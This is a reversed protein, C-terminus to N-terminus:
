GHRSRRRYATHIRSLRQRRRQRRPKAAEYRRHARILARYAPRGLRVILQGGFSVPVTEPLPM